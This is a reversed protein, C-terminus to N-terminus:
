FHPVRFLPVSKFLHGLTLAYEPLRLLVLLLFKVELDQGSPYSECICVQHYLVCKHQRIMLLTALLQLFSTCLPRIMVKISLIKPLSLLFM